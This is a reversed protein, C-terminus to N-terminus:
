LPTAPGNQYPTPMINLMKINGINETWNLVRAGPALVYKCTFYFYVGIFFALSQCIIARNMPLMLPIYREFARVEM